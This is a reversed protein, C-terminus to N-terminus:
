QKFVSGANAAEAVTEVTRDKWRVRIEGQSSLAIWRRPAGDPDMPEERTIKVTRNKGVAKTKKEWSVERVWPKGEYRIFSYVYRTTSRTRLDLSVVELGDSIQKVRVDQNKDDSPCPVGGAFLRTAIELPLGGLVERAASPRGFEKQNEATFRLDIKEHDITLWAQPAGILNTVEVALHEPYDVRVSAPFPGSMEKSEIKTWISGSIKKGTLNPCAAAMLERGSLGQFMPTSACASLFLFSLIIFRFLFRIGSM